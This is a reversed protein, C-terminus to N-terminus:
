NRGCYGSWEILIDDITTEGIVDLAALSVIIDQHFGNERVPRVTKCMFANSGIAMGVVVPGMWRFQPMDIVATVREEPEADQHFIIPM